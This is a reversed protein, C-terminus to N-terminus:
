ESITHLPAEYLLLIILLHSFYTKRPVMQCQEAQKMEKQIKLEEEMFNDM